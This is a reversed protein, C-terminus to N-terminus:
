GSIVAQVVKGPVAIIVGIIPSLTVPPTAVVITLLLIKQALVASNLIPSSTTNVLICIDPAGTLVKPVKTDPM